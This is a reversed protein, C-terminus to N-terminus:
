LVMLVPVTDCHKKLNGGSDDLAATGAVSKKLLCATYCLQFRGIDESTYSYSLPCIIIKWYRGFLGLILMTIPVGDELIKWHIPALM